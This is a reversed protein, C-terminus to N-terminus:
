LCGPFGPNICCSDWEECYTATLARNVTLTFTCVPSNTCGAGVGSFGKVVYGPPATGSVTVVTTRPMQYTCPDVACDANVPDDVHVSIVGPTITLTRMPEFGASVAMSATSLTLTCTPGTNGSCAGGWGVFGNDAAPQATLSVPATDFRGTCTTGCDLGVPSSTIAGAGIGSRSVTVVTQGRGGLSAASAGAQGGDVELSALAPGLASPTFTVGIACRGGLGLLAGTCMDSVVHFGNSQGLVLALPGSVLEGTNEIEFSVPATAIGRDQAGFDHLPPTVTLAGALGRGFLTAPVAGTHSAATLSLMAERAGAATPVFTAVIRCTAAPALTMGTCEDGLEFDAVHGGAQAALPGVDSSGRNIVTITIAVSRRGVGVGAFDLTDDSLELSLAGPDGADVGDDDGGGDVTDDDAPHVSGCAAAAALGACLLLTRMVGRNQLAHAVSM